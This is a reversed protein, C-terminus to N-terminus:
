PIGPRNVGRGEESKERVVRLYGSIRRMQQDPAVALRRCCHIELVVRLLCM